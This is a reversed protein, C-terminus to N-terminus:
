TSLMEELLDVINTSVRFVTRTINDTPRLALIRDGGYVLKTSNTQSPTTDDSWAREGQAWTEADQSIASTGDKALTVFRNGGYEVAGWRSSSPMNATNWTSGDTSWICAQYGALSSNAGQAVIVFKGAGYTIDTWYWDQTITVTTWSVGDNTSRYITNSNAIVIIWVGNGYKIGAINLRSTALQVMTWTSGYDTSYAAYTYGTNSTGTAIFVGNGFGIHYWDMYTYTILHTTWSSGNTSVYAKPEMGSSTGISVFYGDGYAIESTTYSGTAVTSWSISNTTISTSYSIFAGSPCVFVGGGYAGKLGSLNPATSIWSGDIHWNFMDLGAEVEDLAKNSNTIAQTALAQATNATTEATNALTQSATSTNLATQSNSLATNATTQSSNATSVATQSNSLATSASQSAQNALSVASASDTLATQADTELGNVTTTLSSISSATQQSLTQAETAVQQSANAISLASSATQSAQSSVSVASAADTGAQQIIPTLTEGTSKASAADTAASQATTKAETSEARSADATSKAATSNALAQQSEAQSAEATTKASQATSLALNIKTEDVSIIANGAITFGTGLQVVGARGTTAFPTDLVGIDTIDLSEGIMVLGLATRTAPAFSAGDIVPHIVVGGTSDWGIIGDQDIPIELKTHNSIVEDSPAHITYAKFNMDQAIAYAKDMGFETVNPYLTNANFDIDQSIPISREITLSKVEAIPKLMIALGYVNNTGSGLEIKFDTDLVLVNKENNSDLYWIKVYEDNQLFDYTINFTDGTAISGSTIGYTISAISTRAALTM